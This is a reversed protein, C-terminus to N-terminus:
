SFSDYLTNLIRTLHDRRGEPRKIDLISKGVAVGFTEKANPTLAYFFEQEPLEKADVRRYHEWAEEALRRKRGHLVEIGRLTTDTLIPTSEAHINIVMRNLEGDNPGFQIWKLDILRHRVSEIQARAERLVNRDESLRKSYNVWLWSFPEKLFPLKGAIFKIISSEM